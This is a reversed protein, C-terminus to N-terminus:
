SLRERIASLIKDKPLLACVSNAWRIEKKIYSATLREYYTYLMRHFYVGLGMGMNALYLISPNTQPRIQSIGPIPIREGQNLLSRLPESSCLANAAYLLRIARRRMKGDNEEEKQRKSKLEKTSRKTLAILDKSLQIKM